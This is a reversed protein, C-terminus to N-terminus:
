NPLIVLNGKALPNFWVRQSPGLIQSPRDVGIPGIGKECSGGKERSRRRWQHHRQRGTAAGTTAPRMRRWPARCWSRRRRRWQNGLLIGRRTSWDLEGCFGLGLWGPETQRHQEGAGAGGPTGGRRDRARGHEEHGLPISSARPLRGRTAGHHDPPCQGM